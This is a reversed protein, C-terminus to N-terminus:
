RVKREAIAQLMGGNHALFRRFPEEPLNMRQLVQRLVTDLDAQPHRKLEFAVKLMAVGYLPNEEVPSAERPAAPAPREATRTVVAPKRRSDKSM